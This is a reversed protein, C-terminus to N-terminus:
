VPVGWKMTSPRTRCPYEPGAIRINSLRPVQSQRGPSHNVEPAGGAEERLSCLRRSGSCRPELPLPPRRGGGRFGGRRTARRDAQGIRRELRLLRLRRGEEEQVEPGTMEELLGAISTLIGQNITPSGVVVAKSRFVETIVDNKDTKALNYLKVTVTPDAERIGAAIKEAMVGRATGCPTTSSRSRTKGTARGGVRPVEGRDAVPNDRWIVGHSPCIIDVPLKLALVEKIKKTVLASFPTLINAYYKICEAFLEEQDVLDNFMSETAYHQGFADNSFLINDGTLYSFMSDPWHLM